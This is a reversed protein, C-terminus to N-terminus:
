YGRRCVWNKIRTFLLSGTTEEDEVEPDERTLKLLEKQLSGMDLIEGRGLGSESKSSLQRWTGRRESEKQGEKQIDGLLTQDKSRGEDFPRV